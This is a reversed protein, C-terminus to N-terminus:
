VWLLTCRVPDTGVHGRNWGSLGAEARPKQKDGLGGMAWVVWRRVYMGLLPTGDSGHREQEYLRAARKVFREVTDIAISIGAQSFHYGLFDIGKEIRGIFTKDPHKTLTNKEALM